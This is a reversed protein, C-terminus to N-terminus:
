SMSLRTMSALSSSRRRRSAPAARATRSPARAAGRWRALVAEDGLLDVRPGAVGVQEVAVGAGRQLAQARGDPPHEGAVADELQGGRGDVQGLGLPAGAVLVRGVAGGVQRQGRRGLLAGVVEEQLRQGVEGRDDRAADVGLGRRPRRPM